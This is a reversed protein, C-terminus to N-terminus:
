SKPKIRFTQLPDNRKRGKMTNGRARHRMRAQRIRNEPTKRLGIYGLDHSKALAEKGGQPLLYDPVHRLHPQIRTPRLDDDHRLHQLDGPNEEFHRKLKESKLMELRLERTRAERVAISTVARLADQLRYRFAAVQSMDFNFPKIEHGLKKQKKIIRALIKEDNKTSPISTPPNKRYLAEPIVFSLAMGQQGARATRGVRHTYSTSSTPLDFNLVCAVNKFDVGRSVGYDQKKKTATSRSKNKSSTTHNSSVQPKEFTSPEDEDENSQDEEIGLMEFEDSAIITDYIGKNFEDVIHIRSNVPLESNLICSRISFQELFLKVRYCRDIDGVFVICKGKM